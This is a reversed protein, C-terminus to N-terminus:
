EIFGNIVLVADDIPLERVHTDHLILFKWFKLFKIHYNMRFTISMSYMM